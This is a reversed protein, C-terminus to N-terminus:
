LKKIGIKFDQKHGYMDPFDKELKYGMKKWFHISQKYADIKVLKAGNKKAWNEFEKVYKEGLGQGRLSSKIEISRLKAEKGDISGYIKIGKQPEITPYLKKEWLLDKLKIM